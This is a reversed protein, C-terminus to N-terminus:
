KLDKRATGTSSANAARLLVGEVREDIEKRHEEKGIVLESSTSSRLHGFYEDSTEAALVQTMQHKRRYKNPSPQGKTQTEQSYRGAEM